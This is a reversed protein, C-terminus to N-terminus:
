RSRMSTKARMQVAGVPDRCEASALKHNSLHLHPQFSSRWAVDECGARAIGMVIVEAKYM